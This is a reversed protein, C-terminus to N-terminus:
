ESCIKMIIATSLGWEVGAPDSAQPTPGLSSHKLRGGLPDSAHELKLGRTKSPFTLKGFCTLIKSHQDLLGENRFM